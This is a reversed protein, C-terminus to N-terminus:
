RNGREWERGEKWGKQERGKKKKEEEEYRHVSAYTLTNSWHLEQIESM